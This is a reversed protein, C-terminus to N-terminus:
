TMPKKRPGARPAGPEAVERATIGADLRMERLRGAVTEGADHDTNPDIGVFRLATAAENRTHNAQVRVAIRGSCRPRDLGGATLRRALGHLDTCGRPGGTTSQVDCSGVCPTPRPRDASMHSYAWHRQDEEWHHGAPRLARTAPGATRVVGIRGQLTRLAEQRLHALGVPPAAFFHPVSSGKHLTRLRADLVDLVPVRSRLTAEAAHGVAVYKQLPVRVVRGASLVRVAATLASRGPARSRAGRRGQEAPRGGKPLCAPLLQEPCAGEEQRHERAHADHRHAQTGTHRHARTHVGERGRRARREKGYRSGNRLSIM